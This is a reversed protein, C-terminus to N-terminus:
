YYVYYHYHYYYYYYDYYYYYIYIYIYVYIYIYLSEEVLGQFTKTAKHRPRICRHEADIVVIVVAIAVIMTVVISRAAPYSRPVRFFLNSGFKMTRVPDIGNM